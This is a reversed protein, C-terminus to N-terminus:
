QASGFGSRTGAGPQPGGTTQPLPSGSTTPMGAGPVTIPATSLPGAQYTSAPAATAPSAGMSEPTEATPKECVKKVPNFVDTGTCKPPTEIVDMGEWIGTKACRVYAVLLLLAVPCSVYKYVYVIGALAAAKGVSTALIDRVAQFPPVFAIYAILAAIAIWENRSSLLM